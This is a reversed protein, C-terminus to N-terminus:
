EKVANAGNIKYGKEKTLYEVERGFMTLGGSADKKNIFLNIPDTPDSVM